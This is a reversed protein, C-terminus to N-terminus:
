SLFRVLQLQRRLDLPELLQACCAALRQPGRMVRLAGAADFGSAEEASRSRPELRALVDFPDIPEEPLLTQVRHRELAERLPTHSAQEDFSIAELRSALKESRADAPARRGLLKHLLAM